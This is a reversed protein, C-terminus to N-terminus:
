PAILTEATIKATLKQQCTPCFVTGSQDLHNLNPSFCMVCDLRKCHELGHTHGLEHLALKLMRAELVDTQTTHRLRHLSMMAVYGPLDALGYVCKLIYRYIDHNIVGLVRSGHREFQRLPEFLKDAIYQQRRPNFANTPLPLTAAIDIQYHHKSLDEALRYLEPGNVGDYPVITLQV